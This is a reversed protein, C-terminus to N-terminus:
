EKTFCICHLIRVDLPSIIYWWIFRTGTKQLYVTIDPVGSFIRSCKRSVILISMWGLSGPVVIIARQHGLYMKRIKMVSICDHYCWPLAPSSGVATQGDTREEERQERSRQRGSGATSSKTRMCQTKMALVCIHGRSMACYGKNAKVRWSERRFRRCALPVSRNKAAVEASVRNALWQM